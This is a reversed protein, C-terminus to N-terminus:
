LDNKRKFKEISKQYNEQMDHWLSMGSPKVGSYVANWVDPSKKKKLKFSLRGQVGKEVQAEQSIVEKFLDFDLVFIIKHGSLLCKGTVKLHKEQVKYDLDHIEVCGATDIRHSFRVEIFVESLSQAWRFSASSTQISSPIELFSLIQTLTKKYHTLLDLAETMDAEKSPNELIYSLNSWNSSKV